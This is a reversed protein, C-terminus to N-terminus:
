FKASVGVTFGADPADRNLGIAVATDLQLSPTLLWALGFDFLVVSGGNKRSAIQPAAIEVFGRVSETLNRSATAAFIGGVFRKGDANRDIIFGPMVGASWGGPLEWEAVVRLSPRVGDGRFASSGTDLDAHLLWAIGPKNSAEDGDQMHWKVGLSVDSFGRERVTIGGSSARARTAGDTELRLEWTDGLGLRLLTPTTSVRSKVGNERDCDIAFGAEIQFRGKGVVDSSEVVDPRDTSIEDDACSAFPTTALAAAALLSALTRTSRTM